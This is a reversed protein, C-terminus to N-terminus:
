GDGVPDWWEEQEAPDYTYLPWPNTQNKKKKKKQMLPWVHINTVMLVPLITERHPRLDFMTHACSSLQSRDTFEQPFSDGCYLVFYNLSYYNCLM